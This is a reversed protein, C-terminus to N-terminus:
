RAAPAAGARWVDYPDIPTGQWWRKEPGLIFIALHLHPTDPPANGSTGVYGIVQGRTVADGEDIEDAYRELHAYYYTYTRTPDFQYLTIGGAQSEFLRAVCGDDIAHVPTERPALIDIAEHQRSRGRKDDFSSHLDGAAVGAVPLHLNRRRLYAIADTESPPTRASTTRTVERAGDDCKRPSPAGSISPAVTPREKV